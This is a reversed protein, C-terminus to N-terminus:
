KITHTHVNLYQLKYTISHTNAVIVAWSVFVPRPWLVGFNNAPYKCKLTVLGFLQYQCAQM